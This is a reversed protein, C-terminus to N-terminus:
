KMLVPAIRAIAIMAPGRRLVLVLEPLEVVDGVAGASKVAVVPRRREAPAIDNDNRPAIRMTEIIAVAGVGPKRDFKGRVAVRRRRRHAEGGVANQLRGQRHDHFTQGRIEEMPFRGDRHDIRRQSHDDIVEQHLKLLLLARRRLEHPPNELANILPLPTVDANRLKALRDTIRAFVGGDTEALLGANRELREDIVLAAFIGGSQQAGAACRQGFDGFLQFEAIDVGERPKKALLEAVRQRAEPAFPEIGASRPANRCAATFAPIAIQM